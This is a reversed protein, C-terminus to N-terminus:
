WTPVVWSKEPMSFPCSILTTSSVWCRRKVGFVGLLKGDRSFVRLPVQMQVDHLAEVDPLDPEFVLYAIGVAAAGIISSVLALVLLWRFLKKM